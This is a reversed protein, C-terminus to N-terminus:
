SSAPTIGIAPSVNEVHSAGSQNQDQGGSTPGSYATHQNSPMFASAPQQNASAIESPPSYPPLGPVSGDDNRLAGSSPMTAADQSVFLVCNM